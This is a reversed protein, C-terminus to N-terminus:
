NKQQNAQADAQETSIFECKFPMFFCLFWVKIRNILTYPYRWEIHLAGNLLDLKINNIPLPKFTIGEFRSPETFDDFDETTM